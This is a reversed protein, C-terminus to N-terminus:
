QLDVVFEAIYNALAIMFAYCENRGCESDHHMLPSLHNDNLYRRANVCLAQKSRIEKNVKTKM